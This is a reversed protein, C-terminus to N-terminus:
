CVSKSFRSADCDKRFPPSNSSVYLKGFSRLAGDAAGSSLTEAIDSFEGVDKVRAVYPLYSGAPLTLNSKSSHGSEGDCRALARLDPGRPLLYTWDESIRSM